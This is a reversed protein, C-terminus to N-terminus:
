TAARRRHRRLAGAGPRQDGQAARHHVPGARAPRQRGRGRHGPDRRCPGGAHCREAGAPGQREARAPGRRCLAGGPAAGAHRAARLPAQRRPLARHPGGDAPGPRGQQQRGHRHDGRGQRRAAGDGPRLLAGSRGAQPHHLDGGQQRRPRAHVAGPDHPAADPGAGGVGPPDARRDARGPDPHRRRPLPDQPDRGAAARGRGLQWIYANPDVAMKYREGLAKIEQATRKMDLRFAPTKLGLIVNEAVTQPRSWSSTSTSWASAWTSPTAQALPDPGAPRAALGRRGGPPVPRGPHEDPDIQRRRKRGAPCPDRGRAGGSRRKRQRARRPFGQHHRADRRCSPIIDHQVPPSHDCSTM